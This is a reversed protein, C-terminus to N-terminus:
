ALILRDCAARYNKPLDCGPFGLNRYFKIFIIVAAVRRRIDLKTKYTRITIFRFFHRGLNKYQM